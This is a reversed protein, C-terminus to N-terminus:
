AWPQINLELKSKQRLHYVMRKMTIDNQVEKGNETQQTETTWERQEGKIVGQDLFYGEASGPLPEKLLQLSLKWSSVSLKTTFIIYKYLLFASWSCMIVLFKTQIRM